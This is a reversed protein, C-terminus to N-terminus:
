PWEQHVRFLHMNRNHKSAFTIGCKPCSYPKMNAHINKVHRNLNSRTTFTQECDLHICYLIKRKDMMSVNIKLDHGMNKQIGTRPNRKRRSYKHVRSLHSTLSNKSDFKGQCFKCSWSADNSHVFAHRRLNEGTKLILACQNCPFSGTKHARLIHSKKSSISAFTEGCTKCKTEKKKVSTESVNEHGDIDIGICEKTIELENRDTVVNRSIADENRHPRFKYLGRALSNIESTASPNPLSTGSSGSDKTMMEIFHESIDSMESTHDNSAMNQVDMKELGEGLHGPAISCEKMHQNSIDKGNLWRNELDFEWPQIIFEELNLENPGNLNDVVGRPGLGMLMAIGDDKRFAASYFETPNENELSASLEIYADQSSGSTM